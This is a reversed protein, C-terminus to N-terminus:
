KHVQKDNMNVINEIGMDENESEYNNDDKEHAAAERM